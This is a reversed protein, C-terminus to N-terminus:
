QKRVISGLINLIQCVRPFQFLRCSLSLVVELAISEIKGVEPRCAAKYIQESRGLNCCHTTFLLKLVTCKKNETTEALTRLTEAMPASIGRLM